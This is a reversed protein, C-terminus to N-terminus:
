GRTYEKQEFTCNTLRNIQAKIECRKDNYRIIQQACVDVEGVSIASRISDELDWLYENYRSLEAALSDLKEWNRFNRVSYRLDDLYDRQDQSLKKKKYRIQLISIRDLIEGIPVPVSIM